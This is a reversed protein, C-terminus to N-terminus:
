KTQSRESKLGVGVSHQEALNFTFLVDAASPSLVVYAMGLFALFYREKTRSVYQRPPM